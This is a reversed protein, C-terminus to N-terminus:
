SRHGTLLWWANIPALVSHLFLVPMLAESLGYAVSLINGLLAMMRLRVMCHMCCSLLSFLAAVFGLIEATDSLPFTM